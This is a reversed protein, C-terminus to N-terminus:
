KGSRLSDSSEKKIAEAYIDLTEKAMKAWSYKKVFKQGELIKNKRENPNMEIAAKMIKEISSFDLQNFYLAHNTYIEKFVPIESALVLAGANMAELGPLGFGESLSPFVFGLSKQYLGGLENDPVFGVLKVLVEAKLDAVIKELRKTFVNRASAIVLIIKKDRNTNLLVLAQILRKLNKHPYANGTYVFYPNEFKLNNSSSINNDLGEYTVTIKNQTTPYKKVLESKIAHSPVIIRISKNVATDFVLRYASRKIFYIPAPLTTALMGSQTHMLLDHITVVYPGKYFIPVNFHPFHVLDPNQNKILGPLIFQEQFSYHRFDALIKQWNSPLILSDFYKKRLLIVYQTTTDTKSLELILNNLYRGLGANELGYLRADILLRM